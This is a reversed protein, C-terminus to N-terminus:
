NAFKPKIPCGIHGGPPSLWFRVITMESIVTIALIVLNQSYIHKIFNCWIHYADSNQGVKWPWLPWFSSFQVKVETVKLVPDFWFFTHYTTYGQWSWIHRFNSSFRVLLLRRFANKTPKGGPPQFRFGEFHMEVQVPKVFGELRACIYGLPPRKKFVLNRESMWPLPWFASCCCRSFNGNIVWRVQMRIM